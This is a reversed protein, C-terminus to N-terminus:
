ICTVSNACSEAFQIQRDESPQENRNKVYLSTRRDFCENTVRRFAQDFTSGKFKLKGVDGAHMMCINQMPKADAPASAPARHTTVLTMAKAQYGITLYLAIMMIKKTM